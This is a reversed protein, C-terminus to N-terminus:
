ATVWNGDIVALPLGTESDLLTVVSNIAALGRGPNRPNLVLSKTAVVPPDDAVALTAMIYRDDGPTVVAKPGSWVKGRRQGLIVQEIRAVIEATTMSFGELTKASLYPLGAPIQPQDSM